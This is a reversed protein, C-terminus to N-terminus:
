RHDARYEMGLAFVAIAFLLAAGVLATNRLAPQGTFEAYVAILAPILIAASAGHVLHNWGTTVYVTVPEDLDLDIDQDLPVTTM